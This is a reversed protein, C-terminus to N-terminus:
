LHNANGRLKLEQEVSIRYLYLKFKDQIAKHAIGIAVYTEQQLRQVSKSPSHLMKDLMKDLKNDKLV